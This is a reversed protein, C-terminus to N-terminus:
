VRGTAHSPARVQVTKGRYRGSASSGTASILGNTISLLNRQQSPLLGLAFAGGIGVTLSVVLDFLVASGWIGRTLMAGTTLVVVTHVPQPSPSPRRPIRTGDHLLGILKPFQRARTYFRAVEGPTDTDPMTM